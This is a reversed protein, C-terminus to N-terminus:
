HLKQLTRIGQRSSGSSSTNTKLSMQMVQLSKVKPDLECIGTPVQKYRVPIGAYGTKYTFNQPTPVFQAIATQSASVLVCAAALLSSFM